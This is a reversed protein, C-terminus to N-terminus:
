MTWLVLRRRYQRWVQHTFLAVAYILADILFALILIFSTMYLTECSFFGNNLDDNSGYLNKGEKIAVFLFLLIFTFDM